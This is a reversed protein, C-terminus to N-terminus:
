ICCHRLLNCCRRLLNFFGTNRGHDLFNASLERVIREGQNREPRSGSKGTYIQSYIFHATTAECLCWIKIGYKGPKTPIYCKFPVCGRFNCLQEDVTMFAFPIYRSMCNQVFLEWLYRNPADKISIDRNSRNDFRIYRSIM